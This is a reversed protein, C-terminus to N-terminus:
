RRDSATGDDVMSRPSPTDQGKKVDINPISEMVESGAKMLKCEFVQDPETQQPEDKSDIINNVSDIEEVDNAHSQNCCSSGM